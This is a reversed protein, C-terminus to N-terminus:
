PLSEIMAVLEDRRYGHRRAVALLLRAQDLV